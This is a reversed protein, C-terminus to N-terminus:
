LRTDENDQQTQKMNNKVRWLISKRNSISERLYELVLSSRAMKRLLKKLGSWRKEWELYPDKHENNWLNSFYIMEALWCHHSSNNRWLYKDTWIVGLPKLIKFVQEKKSGVCCFSHDEIESNQVLLHIFFIAVCLCVLYSCSTCWTCIIKEWIKSNVGCEGERQNDIIM